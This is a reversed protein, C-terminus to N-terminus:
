ILNLYMHHFRSKLTRYIYITCDFSKFFKPPIVCNQELADAFLFNKSPTSARRHESNELSQPATGIKRRYKTLHLMLNIHTHIFYLFIITTKICM